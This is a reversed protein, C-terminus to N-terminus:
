NVIMSIECSSLCTLLNIGCPDEEEQQKKHRYRKSLIHYRVSKEVFKEGITLYPSGPVVWAFELPFLSFIVCCCCYCWCSFFASGLLSSMDSEDEERVLAASREGRWWQRQWCPLLMVAIWGAKVDVHPRSLLYVFLCVSRFCLKNDRMSVSKITPRLSRSAISCVTKLVLIQM